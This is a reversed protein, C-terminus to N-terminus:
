KENEDIELRKTAFQSPYKEVWGLDPLQSTHPDPVLGNSIEAIREYKSVM